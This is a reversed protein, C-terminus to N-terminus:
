FPLVGAPLNIQLLRGFVWYSAGSGAVALVVARMSGIKGSTRMAVALFLAMTLLFGLREFLWVSAVVSAVLYVVEPREPRVRTAGVEPSLWAMGLLIVALVSLMLGLLLPFFGAGPMRLSGFPVQVAELCIWAGLLLFGGAVASAKVREPARPAM